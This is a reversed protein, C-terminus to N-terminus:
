RRRAPPSLFGSSALLCSRSASLSICGHCFEDMSARGVMPVYCEYELKIVKKGEFLNRTIGVFTVIAGAGEDHARAVVDDHSLPDGTIAVTDDPM